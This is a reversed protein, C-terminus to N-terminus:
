KFLFFLTWHLRLLFRLLKYNIGEQDTSKTSTECIYGPHMLQKDCSLDNFLGSAHSYNGYMVACNGDGSPQDEAWSFKGRTASVKSNDSIWKWTGSKTDKKLGIYYEITKM